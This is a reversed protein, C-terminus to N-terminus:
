LLESGISKFIEAVQSKTKISFYQVSEVVAELREYMPISLKNMYDLRILNESTSFQIQDTYSPLM